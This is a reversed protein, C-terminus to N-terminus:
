RQPESAKLKVINGAGHCCWNKIEDQRCLLKGNLMATHEATSAINIDVERYKESYFTKALYYVGEGNYGDLDKETVLDEGKQLTFPLQEPLDKRFLANEDLYENTHVVYNLYGAECSGPSQSPNVRVEDNRFPNTAGFVNKNYCHWYPGYVAWQRAGGVGFLYEEEGVTITFLNKDFINKDCKYKVSLPLSVGEGKEFSILKNDWDFVLRESNVQVSADCKETAKITVILEKTEGVFLSDLYTNYDIRHM